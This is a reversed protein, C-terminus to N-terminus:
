RGDLLGTGRLHSTENMSRINRQGTSAALVRHISTYDPQFFGALAGLGLVHALYTNIVGGHCSVVVRQGRHTAVIEEFAEVVTKQFEAPDGEGTWEGRQMAQWDPHNSAKLEEIPIYEASNRDWEAIGEHVRATLNTLHELPAATQRARRMPSSYIADIRENHLYDAVLAAQRVGTPDLAPDAPVGPENLVKEPLAHRVIILEM